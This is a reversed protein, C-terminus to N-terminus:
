CPRCAPCRCHLWDFTKGEARQEDHRARYGSPQPVLITWEEVLTLGARDPHPDWALEGQFGVVVHNCKSTPTRVTPGSMLHFGGFTTVRLGQIAARGLDVFALGHHRELYAILANNYSGKPEADIQVQDPLSEAPVRLLCAMATQWCNGEPALRTQTLHLPGPYRDSASLASLLAEMVTWETLRPPENNHGSCKM